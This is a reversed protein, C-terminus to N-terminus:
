SGKLLSMDYACVICLYKGAYMKDCSVNDFDFGYEIDEYGEEQEERYNAIACRHTCSSVNIVTCGNSGNSTDKNLLGEDYLRATLVFPGLHNSQFTKEHGDVTLVRSPYGGGGANNKLVDIKQISNDDKICEKYRKPFSRVSSLDDLDLTVGRVKPNNNIYAGSVHKGTKGYVSEIGNCYNEVAKITQTVKQDTRATIVVTAGALALRKSSELGLGSSAGTILVIKDNMSQPPPQYVGNKDEDKQRGIGFLNFKLGDYFKQPMVEDPSSGYVVTTDDIDNNTAYCTQTKTQTSTPISTFAKATSFSSIVLLVFFLPLMTYQLLHNRQQVIAVALLPSTTNNNNQAQRNARLFLFSMKDGGGVEEEQM